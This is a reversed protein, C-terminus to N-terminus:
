PARVLAGLEHCAPFLGKQFPHGPRWRTGRLTVLLTGRAEFSWGPYVIGTAASAAQSPKEFRWLDITCVETVGDLTRGYHRAQTEVVGWRREDSGVQTVAAERTIEWEPGVQAASPLLAELAATPAPRPESARSTTSTVIERRPEHKAADACSSPDDVFRVAGGPDACRYIEGAAAVGPLSCLLAIALAQRVEPKM